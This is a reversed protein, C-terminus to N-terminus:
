AQSAAQAFRNSHGVVFSDFTYRPNLHNDLSPHDSAPSVRSIPPIMLPASPMPQEPSQVVQFCLTVPEGVREALLKEIQPQYHDWMWDLFFPNPVQVVLSGTELSVHKVPKFWLEYSEDNM